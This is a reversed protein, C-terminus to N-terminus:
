TSNVQWALALAALFVRGNACLAACLGRSVLKPRTRTLSLAERGDMQAARQGETARGSIAKGIFCRLQTQSGISRGVRMEGVSERSSRRHGVLLSRKRGSEELSGENPRKSQLPVRTVPHLKSPRHYSLHERDETLLMSGLEPVFESTTM